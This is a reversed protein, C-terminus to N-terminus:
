YYLAVPGLIGSELLPMEKGPLNDVPSTTWCNRLKGFLTFDGIIRNRWTNAVRIELKNDKEKLLGSVDFRFGPFASCGLIKGNLNIEYASKVADLSIYLPKVDVIDAPLDFDLSYKAKGSYYKIDPDASNTWSSFSTIQVPVKGPLDEFELSGKLDELVFNRALEQRIQLGPTKKDNFVFFLSEKPRFKVKVHTLGNSEHSEAPLTVTGNEPNWIEPSKGAIRFICDREVPKNEQNVVFYVDTTGLKKHIDLLNPMGEQRGSFDPNVKQKELIEKLGIGSYVRGHGYTNEFIGTNGANGWVKDSLDRLVKENEAFNLNGAVLLPKPGSVVAGANVLEAIIQLTQAEMQQDDPLLLMEYSLGNDLWLKGNKVKCHNTLVDLNCKQVQFGEPVEYYGSFDAEQYFRDGVFYLIDAVPVGQQLVYQVRSHYTFWQSSFDWWPNHRNFSQGFVGLTVGPKKEFPQHVYSHLVMQNIGSCFARDGFLKLDWPSESYNAYGTYAEAPIVQKGYLAGAQVPIEFATSKVPDYNVLKTKPDFGAWFEFMPVDVYKNSKLIDLPPYASGGYIVEAHSRVGYQHCLENFQRYYNEEILDSITQRFDHLFRETAGNDNVTIGCIVPLWNIMSYHRRKEFEQAFNRTWNQYRCEWSDIFLYEFTNGAYKGAHAILKAPFSRFHLNLAATDLKDCELGTGAKTGPANQAGTTTYGIRLVEWRGAPADWKLNGEPTMYQSIDQIDELPVSGATDTGQALVENVKDPMTTVTKQLHCPIHTFYAPNEGNALLEVESIGINADDLEAINSFELRYYRATTPRIEIVSTRNPFPGDFKQVSNFTRGDASAKLEVQYHVNQLSGWVFEIRPHIAIKAAAFDKNFVIDMRSGEKVNVMSFPDGDYLMNGTASGDANITAKAKQFSSEDEKLPFALVRIDQYYELNKKPEPINLDTKEGGQIITRSWVCRKMSYEPSIWPGGSSSWGDCNHAGIKMGLRDAEKLAWEFLQFWEETNFIAQPVGMDRENLLGVNLITATCIGQKKMAELDKTIGEKTISNDLWHWWAHVSREFPPNQFVSVDLKETTDNKCGVLLAIGMFFCIVTSKLTKM